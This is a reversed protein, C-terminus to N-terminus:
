FPPEPTTQSPSNTLHGIEARTQPAEAPPLEPTSPIEIILRRRVIAAAEPQGHEELWDALIDMADPDHIEPALGAERAKRRIWCDVASPHWHSCAPWRAKVDSAPGATRRGISPHFCKLYRGSTHPNASCHYCTGCREGAPGTGPRDATWPTDPLAPTRPGADFLHRQGPLDM